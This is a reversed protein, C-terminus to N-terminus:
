TLSGWCSVISVLPVRPAATVKGVHEGSGLQGQANSRIHHPLAKKILACIPCFMLLFTERSRRHRNSPPVARTPTLWLIPKNAGWVVGTGIFSTVGLHRM